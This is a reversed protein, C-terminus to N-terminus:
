KKIHGEDGRGSLFDSEDIEEGFEHMEGRLLHYQRDDFARPNICCLVRCNSMMIKDNLFQIFKLITEYNTRTALYEIGDLLVLGDNVEGVFRSITSSLAPLNDPKICIEGPANENGTLWVIPTKELGYKDRIKKPNQRTICLGKINHRVQDAFVDMFEIDGLRDITYIYGADFYYKQESEDATESVPKIELGTIEALDKLTIIHGGMTGTSTFRATSVTVKAINEDKRVFERVISKRQDLKLEEDGHLMGAINKGLLEASTYGLLRTASKNSSMIRGNEDTTIISDPSEEIVTLANESTDKLQRILMHNNIAVGLGASISLLETRSESGGPDYRESYFAMIGIASNKVLVPVIIDFLRGEVIQSHLSVPKESSYFVGPTEIITDGSIKDMCMVKAKADEATITARLKLSTKDPLDYLYIAGTDMGLLELSGRLTGELVEDLDNSRNIITTIRNIIGLEKNRESLSEEAKKHETFDEILSICFMPKGSPDRVISKFLRGWMVSGDKRVYRKELHYSDIDGHVMERYWRSEADYDPPYTFERFTLGRLEDRSYGLMRLFAENSDMFHGSVDALYIGVPSNEYISRFRVESALLADEALKRETIDEKIAIFNTIRGSADKLPSIVASEWFLEGDKRRNHLMGRWERGALITDWLQKYEEKSTEGTKLIRPNQGIAEDATYGTLQTFKPNVYEITGNIDTIVVTAPSEAVARSLKRLEEENRLRETIDRSVGFIAFKGGWMGRTIKTEVPIYSGDKRRLPIPCSDRKGAIMDRIIEGTEGSREAPHMDIVHMRRAEERTYGLRKVVTQNIEVIMGRDDTIFLFDDVTDFLTQLNKRSEDLAADSRIRSLTSGLNVAISELTRLSAAPIENHTHSAMNFAAILKGEHMLPIIVISRLHEQEHDLTSDSINAYSTYVTRGEMLIAAQRSDAEYRSASAVFGASLNRHISLNLAGSHPDVLYIGGCDVGDIKMAADMIHGLAENLSDVKNLAMSLDYQVRLLKEAQKRETIDRFIVRVAPNKEYVDDISMVEVDITSGDPRIFKEEIIPTVAGISSDKIRQVVIGRYEPAVFGIVPKGVIDETRTGGMLRIAANNAFVIIGKVHIAVADFSNELLRKNRDESEARLAELRKRETVDRIISVLVPEGNMDIFRTSVEVTMVSGDKRQHVTEYLSGESDAKKIQEDLIATTYEAQLDRVSLQLLEERTYGYANAASQNADIIRGDVRYFIIIDHVYRSLLEFRQLTEESEELRKLLAEMESNNNALVKEQELLQENQQRTEELQSELETEIKKIPTIDRVTEIAGTIMGQSDVLPSAIVDLVPSKNGKIIANNVVRSLKGNSITIDPYKERIDQEPMGIIDVLLPTKKGYFPISYEGDGKGLMEVAPVGTIEEMARNWAIVVGKEDVVFTPDPNFNVINFLTDNKRELQRNISTYKSMILGAFLGIIVFMSVRLWPDFSVLLLDYNVALHLLGLFLSVWVAKKNYWVSALLIPLYFFQTYVAQLGYIVNFVFTLIICITILSALIAIRLSEGIEIKEAIVVMSRNEDIKVKEAM